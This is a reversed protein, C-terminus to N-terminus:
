LIAEKSKLCRTVLELWKKAQMPWKQVWVQLIHVGAQLIDVGEALGLRRQHEGRRGFDQAM